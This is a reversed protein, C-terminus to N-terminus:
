SDLAEHLKWMPDLEVQRIAYCPTPMKTNKYADYMVTSGHVFGCIKYYPMCGTVLIYFRDWPLKLPILLQGHPRWTHKVDIEKGEVIFDPKSFDHDGEWPAPWEWRYRRGVVCEAGAGEVHKSWNEYVIEHPDGQLHNWLVSLNRGTGVNVSCIMDAGSLRENIPKHNM